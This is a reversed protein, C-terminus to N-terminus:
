NTTTFTLEIRMQELPHAPGQLITRNVSVGSNNSVLQIGTNDLTGNLIEQFYLTLNFRYEDNVDDRLGLMSSFIGTQDPILADAGTETKRFAFFQTAPPYSPSFADNTPIVLEVKNLANLDTDAFDDLFPALVVTRLGGGAQVFCYENLDPDALASPLIPSLAQTHDFETMTFRAANASIVFDFDLQAGSTDTLDRYYLTVKSDGDLLDFYLIGREFPTMNNNDVEIKIGNFFDLFAINDALEAQGWRDLFRQGLADDLRIRLQPLLTDGGVFASNLPRPQILDGKFEVLDQDLTPLTKINFFSSDADLLTDLEYVRFTQPDLNGYGFGFEDFEMALVISDLVLDAPNVGAGVNNTSLLIQTAISANVMGFDRDLYSGLMNRTLGSTRLSDDPITFALLSVTDVVVVGLEEGDPLLDTGFTEDTKECAAFLGIMCLAAVLRFATPRLSKFIPDLPLDLLSRKM